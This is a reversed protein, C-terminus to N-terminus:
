KGALNTMVSQLLEAQYKTDEGVVKLMDTSNSISKKAKVIAMPKAGKLDGAAKTALEGAEKIVDAQAKIDEKVVEIDEMTPADGVYEVGEPLQGGSLYYYKHLTNTINISNTRAQDAKKGFADINSLSTSESAKMEALKEMRAMGGLIAEPEIAYSAATAMLAVALTLIMKKMM